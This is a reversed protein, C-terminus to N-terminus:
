KSKKKTKPRAFFVLASAPILAALGTGLTVGTPPNTSSDGITPDVLYCSSCRGNVFEHPLMEISRTHKEGCVDCIMEEIGEETCTAEKVTEWVGHCAETMESGCVSCTLKHQVNGINVANEYKHEESVCHGCNKCEQEHSADDIEAWEGFIHEAEETHGCLECERECKGTEHNDTWEGFVHEAEEIYGCVECERECKGTEHNDTFEGMIHDEAEQRGCVTCERTHQEGGDDATWDSFVHEAKETHGCNECEKVCIETGYDTWDGFVHEAEETHGCATCERECKGTEANDTWEGYTHNTIYYFACDECRRIHQAEDYEGWEGFSHSGEEIFGCDDCDRKHCDTQPDPIWDNFNHDGTETHGCIECKREHKGTEANETWEGFAHDAEDIHGCIECIRECKGTEHNDEWEGYVHDAEEIHGCTECEREHKGTEANETWESFTHHSVDRYGCHDQCIRSHTLGDDAIWETMSHDAYIKNGCIVCMKSHMDADEYDWMDLYNHEAEDIYRCDECVRVHTDTNYYDSWEGFNHGSEELYHCISCVRSHTEGDNSGWDGMTHNETKIYGCDDCINIHTTYSISEWGRFNHEEVVDEHCYDCVGTHTGDANDQHNSVSPHSEYVIITYETENGFADTARIGYASTNGVITYVGNADPQAVEGNITVSVDSDDTVTFTITGCYNSGDTIGNIVPAKVDKTTVNIVTDGGIVVDSIDTVNVASGGNISATVSDIEWGEDATLTIGEPLKEGGSVWLTKQDSTDDEYTVKGHDDTNITVKYSYTVGLIIEVFNKDAIHDFIDISNDPAGAEVADTYTYASPSNVPDSFPSGEIATYTNGDDSTEIDIDCYLPSVYFKPTSNIGKLAGNNGSLSLNGRRIIVEDCILGVGTLTTNSTVYQQGEVPSFSLDLSGGMMTLQETEMAQYYNSKVTVKGGNVKITRASISSNGLLSLIDDEDGYIDVQGETYLDVDANKIVNSGSLVIDIDMTPMGSEFSVAQIFDGPINATGCNINMGNLNIVCKGPQGIDAIMIMDSVDTTTSTINYTGPGFLACVGSEYSVNGGETTVKYDPLCVDFYNAIAHYKGSLSKGVILMNYTGVDTEDPTGDIYLGEEREVETAWDPKGGGWIIETIEHETVSNTLDDTEAIFVANSSYYGAYLTTYLIGGDNKYDNQGSPEITQTCGELYNRVAAYDNGNVDVYSYLVGYDIDMDELIDDAIETNGLLYSEYIALDAETVVGDANADGKVGSAVAAHATTGYLQVSSLAVTFALVSSVTRKLINNM